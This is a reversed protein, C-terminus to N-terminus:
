VAAAPPPYFHGAVQYRVFFGFACCAVQLALLLICLRDEKMPGTVLLVLNVLNLHSPVAQLRGEKNLRPLRHRPCPVIRLLQPLSYLFNVIQPVFFLMLTKSFHGLIGAVSFTMGAFYTFCDGVFVDSPFWNHRLLAATVGAFPLVFLISFLHQPAAPGSLEVVNHTLVAFAIVLSQGAELGNIGAYINIANTCFVALLGMYLYYLVGLDVVGPLWARLPLPVAVSTGGQYAVLLPLTAVTPLILKYRWPLDVVDDVFGLFIMFCISHLAANYEVLMGGGWGGGVLLLQGAIVCVIYVTGSVVGLSEPVPPKDEKAGPKNLDKGFM